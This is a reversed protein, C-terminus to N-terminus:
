EPKVPFFEAPLMYAPRVILSSLRPHTPPITGLRSNRVGVADRLRNGTVRLRNAEEMFPREAERGLRDQENADAAYREPSRDFKARIAADADAVAKAAARYQRLDELDRAVDDANLNFHAMGRKLAVVIETPPDIGPNSVEWAVAAVYGDAAADADARAERVIVSVMGGSQLARQDRDVAEAAAREPNMLIAM